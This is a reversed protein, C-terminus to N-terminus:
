ATEKELEDAMQKFQAEIRQYDEKRWRPLAHPGELSEVREIGIRQVLSVRYLQQNGSKFLNCQVCQAAINDLHFRLEPRAKTTLWHGAQFNPKWETNCSICPKGHDRARIYRNVQKQAREAWYSLPKLEERKARDAKREDSRKRQEEKERKAKAVTLACVPGCVNQGMRQPTFLIGCGNAKCKKPKPPKPTVEDGVM